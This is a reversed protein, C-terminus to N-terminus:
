KRGGRKVNKLYATFIAITQEHKSMKLWEGVKVNM